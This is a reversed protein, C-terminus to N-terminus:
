ETSAAAQQATSSHIFATGGRIALSSSMPRNSSSPFIAIPTPRATTTSLLIRKTITSKTSPTSHRLLYHRRRRLLFHGCGAKLVHRFRSTSKTNTHATITAGAEHVWANGNTHDTHWHSNILQTIPDSSLNDLAAKVRPMSVTFGSDILLKGDKGTLVTINGGSGELVSINRRVSHTEIKGHEASENMTPVIRKKTQLNVDSM